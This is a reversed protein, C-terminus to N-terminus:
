PDSKAESLAHYAAPVNVQAHVWGWLAYGKFDEVATETREVTQELGVQSLGQRPAAPRRFERRRELGRRM